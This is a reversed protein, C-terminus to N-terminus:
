LVMQTQTVIAVLKGLGMHRLRNSVVDLALAFCRETAADLEPHAGNGSHMRVMHAVSALERSNVPAWPAAKWAASASGFESAGYMRAFENHAGASPMYALSARNTDVLNWDM